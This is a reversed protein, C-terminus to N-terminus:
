LAGMHMGRGTNWVQAILKQAASELFQVCGEYAM